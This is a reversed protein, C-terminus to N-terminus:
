TRVTASQKRGSTHETRGGESRLATSCHAGNGKPADGGSAREERGSEMGESGAKWGRGGEGVSTASAGGAKRQPQRALWRRGATTRRLLVVATSRKMEDVDVGQARGTDETSRPWAIRMRGSSQQAGTLWESNEKQKGIGAGEVGDQRTLSSASNSVSCAARSSGQVAGKKKGGRGLRMACRANRSGRKTEKRERHEICESSQTPVKGRRAEHTNSKAAVGLSATANAPM